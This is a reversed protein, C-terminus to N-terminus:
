DTESLHAMVGPQTEIGCDEVTIVRKLRSWTCTLRRIIPKQERAFSTLIHLRSFCVNKIIFWLCVKAVAIQLAYVIKLFKYMKKNKLYKNTFKYSYRLFKITCYIIMQLPITKFPRRERFLTEFINRNRNPVWHCAFGRKLTLTIPKSSQDIPVFVSEGLWYPNVLRRPSPKSNWINKHDHVWNYLFLFQASWKLYVIRFYENDLMQNSQDNWCM